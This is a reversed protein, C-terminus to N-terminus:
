CALIATCSPAVNVLRQEQAPSVPEVDIAICMGDNIRRQRSFQMSHLITYPTNDLFGKVARILHSRGIWAELSPPPQHQFLSVIM